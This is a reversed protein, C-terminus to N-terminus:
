ASDPELRTLEILFMKSLIAFPLREYWTFLKSDTM